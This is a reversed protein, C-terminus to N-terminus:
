VSEIFQQRSLTEATPAQIRILHSDPINRHAMYVRAIRESDPLASNAVVVVRREPAPHEKQATPSPASATLSGLPLCHTFAILIATLAARPSFKFAFFKM